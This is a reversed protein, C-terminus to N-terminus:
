LNAPKSMFATQMWFM